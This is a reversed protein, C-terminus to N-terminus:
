RRQNLKRIQEATFGEKFEVPQHSLEEELEQLRRAYLWDELAKILSDTINKGGTYKRIDNIMDDPIIATVKM